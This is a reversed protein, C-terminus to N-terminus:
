SGRSDARRSSGWWWPEFIEQMENEEATRLVGGMCSFTTSLTITLIITGALVTAIVFRM